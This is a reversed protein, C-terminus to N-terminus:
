LGTTIWYGVTLFISTVIGNICLALTAFGTAKDSLNAAHATGLAHAATGLALGKFVDNKINLVTFVLGCVMVGFLGTIIVMIAAVSPQGGIISTTEIALPTTISKTLVSAMISNDMAFAYFIGICILPAIVGGVLVPIVVKAGLQKLLSLQNYFPVALAITAPLLLWSLGKTGQIYQEVPTETFRLLAYLAAVSFVIPHFLGLIKSLQCIKVSIAYVILTAGTWFLVDALMDINM